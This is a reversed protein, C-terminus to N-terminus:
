GAHKEYSSQLRLLVSARLPADRRYLAGATNSGGILVAM